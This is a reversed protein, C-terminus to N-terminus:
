GDLEIVLEREVFRIAADLAAHDDAQLFIRGVDEGVGLRRTVDNGVEVKLKSDIHAPHERVADLGRVNTVKGAGPHLVVVATPRGPRVELAPDEDLEVACLAEWPNFGYALELCNMIYGGPPRLAVEGVIPGEPSLFLELHTMGWRIALAELARRNLDLVSALTEADLGSPVVNVHKPRWYRTASTWVIRGEHVFSEVSMEEGGVFREAIRNRAPLAVFDAPSKLIEVGRSGSSVRDKVVLPWGLSAASALEHTRSLDLFDTVPVDAARLRQKMILKDHCRRAVSHLSRRAGLARRAYSAAVVSSEVAGIVHTIPGFDAFRETVKAVADRTAPFPAVECRIRRFPVRPERDLWLAYPIKRRKLVAELGQRRGLVLVRPGPASEPTSTM